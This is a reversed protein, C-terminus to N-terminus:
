YGSLEWLLRAKAENAQAALDASGGRDPHVKQMLRRHAQVVTAEDAGAEVQLIRQAQDLSMGGPYPKRYGPSSPNRDETKDKGTAGLSRRLKAWLPWLKILLPLRRLLALVVVGLAAFIHLRGSAVLVLLVAAGAIMLARWLLRKSAAASLNRTSRWYWFAATALIVVILLQMCGRTGPKDDTKPFSLVPQDLDTLADTRPYTRNVGQDASARFGNYDEWRCGGM